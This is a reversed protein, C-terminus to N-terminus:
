RFLSLPCSRAPSNFDERQTESNLPEFQHKM